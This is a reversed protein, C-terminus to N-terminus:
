EPLGSSLKFPGTKTTPGSDGEDDTPTLLLELDEDQSVGDPTWFIVHGKGTATNATTVGLDGHGGFIKGSCTTGGAADKPDTVLRCRAGGRLLEFTMDVSNEEHDRVWYVISVSDGELQVPGVHTVAPAANQVRIGQDCAAVALAAMLLVASRM